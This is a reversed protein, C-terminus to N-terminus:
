SAIRAPLHGNGAIIGADFSTSVRGPWGASGIGTRHVDAASARSAFMGSNTRGMARVPM